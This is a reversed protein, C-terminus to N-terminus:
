FLYMQICIAGRYSLNLNLLSHIEYHGPYVTFTSLSFSPNCSFSFYQLLPLSKFFKTKNKIKENSVLQWFHKSHVICHGQKTLCVSILYPAMKEVRFENIVWKWDQMLPLPSFKWKQFSEHSLINQFNLSRTNCAPFLSLINWPIFMSFSGIIPVTSPKMQLMMLEIKIADNNHSKKNAM